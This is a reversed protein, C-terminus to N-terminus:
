LESKVGHLGKIAEIMSEALSAEPNSDGAPDDPAESVRLVKVVQDEVYMAFRKCRPGGLVSVPGPHDLVLDLARTLEGSPDGMFSILAHGEVGQDKAWASM